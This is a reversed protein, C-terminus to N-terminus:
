SAGSMSASPPSKDQGPLLTTASQSSSISSHVSQAVTKETATGASYFFYTSFMTYISAVLLGLAVVGSALSLYKAQRVMKPSVKETPLDRLRWWFYSFLLWIGVFVFAGYYTLSPQTPHRLAGFGWILGVINFLSVLIIFAWVETKTRM